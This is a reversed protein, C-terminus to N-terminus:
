FDADYITKIPEPLPVGKIFREKYYTEIHGDKSRKVKLYRPEIELVMGTDGETWGDTAGQVVETFIVEQGVQFDQEQNQPM